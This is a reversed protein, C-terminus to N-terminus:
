PIMKGQENILYSLFQFHFCALAELATSVRGIHGKGGTDVTAILTWLRQVGRRDVCLALEMVLPVAFETVNAFMEVTLVCAGVGGTIIDGTFVPVGPRTHVVHLETVASESTAAGVEM